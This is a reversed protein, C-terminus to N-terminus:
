TYTVVHHGSLNAGNHVGIGRYDTSLLKRIVLLFPKQWGTAPQPSFFDLKLMVLM